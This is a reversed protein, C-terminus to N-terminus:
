PFRRLFNRREQNSVYVKNHDKCYRIKTARISHPGGLRWKQSDMSFTTGNKFEKQISQVSDINFCVTACYELRESSM